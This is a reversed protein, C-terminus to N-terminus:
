LIHKFFQLTERKHQKGLACGMHNGHVLGTHTKHPERTSYGQMWPPRTCGLDKAQCSSDHDQCELTHTKSPLLSRSEGREERERELPPLYSESFTM